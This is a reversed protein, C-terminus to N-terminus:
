DNDKERLVLENSEINLELETDEYWSLDNMM